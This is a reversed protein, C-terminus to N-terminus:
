VSDWWAAAGAGAGVGADTVVGASAGPQQVLEVSFSVNETM